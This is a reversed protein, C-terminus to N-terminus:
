KKIWKQNGFSASEQTISHYIIPKEFVFCNFAFSSDHISKENRNYSILSRNKTINKRKLFNIEKIDYLFGLISTKESYDM